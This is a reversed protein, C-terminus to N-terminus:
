YKYVYLCLTRKGKYETLLWIHQEYVTVARGPLRHTGGRLGQGVGHQSWWIFVGAYEERQQLCNPIGFFNLSALETTKQLLSKSVHCHQSLGDCSPVEVKILRYLTLIWVTLRHLDFNEGRSLRKAMAQFGVWKGCRNKKSLLEKVIWVFISQM